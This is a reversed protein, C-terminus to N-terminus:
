WPWDAVQEHGGGSGHHVSEFSAAVTSVSFADEASSFQGLGVLAAGAAVTAAIIMTITRKVSM